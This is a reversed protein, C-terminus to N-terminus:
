KNKVVYIDNLLRTHLVFYLLFIVFLVSIIVHTQCAGVIALFNSKHSGGIFGIVFGLHVYFLLM